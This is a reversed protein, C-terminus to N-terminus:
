SDEVIAVEISVDDVDLDSASAVCIPDAGGVAVDFLAVDM